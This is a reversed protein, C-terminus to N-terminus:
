IKKKLISLISIMIHKLFFFNSIDISIKLTIFNVSDYQKWFFTYKYNLKSKLSNWDSIKKICIYKFFFNKFSYNIKKRYHPFIIYRLDVIYVDFGKKKFFSLNFRRIHEPLFFEFVLILKKKM